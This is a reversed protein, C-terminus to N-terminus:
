TARPLRTQQNTVRCVAPPQFQTIVSTRKLGPWETTRHSDQSLVSFRGLLDSSLTLKFNGLCNVRMCIIFIHASAWRLKHVECVSLHEVSFTSLEPKPPIDTTVSRFCLHNPHSDTLPAPSQTAIDPAVGNLLM